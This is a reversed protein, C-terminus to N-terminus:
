FEVRFVVKAIQVDPWDLADSLAAVLGLHVEDATRCIDDRPLAANRIMATVDDLTRAVAAIEDVRERRLRPMADAHSSIFDIAADVSDEIQRTAMQAPTPFNATMAMQLHDIISEDVKVIRCEKLPQAGAAAVSSPQREVPREYPRSRIDLRM